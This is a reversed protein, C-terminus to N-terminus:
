NVFDSDNNTNRTTPEQQHQQLRRETETQIMNQQVYHPLAPNLSLVYPLLIKSTDSFDVSCRIYMIDDRVYVNDDQLIMPLPFFRPLGSAVNMESRPRQFSNSKIDPRFSDIIHHHQGSQDFLCFTVKFNFPWKLIADYKGRMLLFFLSMHTQRATGDGQVYLRVCMKYGTPSSYFPPSYISTQRESQADAIKETINDIKWMLTGHYSVSQLDQVKQKTTLLEQQFIEQNSTIGAIYSSIENVSQKVEQIENQFAKLQNQHLLSETSLRISDDSLAQISDTIVTLKEYYQQLRSFCDNVAAISASSDSIVASLNSSQSYLKTRDIDNRCLDIMQMLNTICGHLCKQHFESLYHAAMESKLIKEQLCGDKALPCSETIQTCVNKEHEVLTYRTSFIEECYNCKNITEHCSDIHVQYKKLPGTWDCGDPKKM